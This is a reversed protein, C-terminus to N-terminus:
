GSDRLITGDPLVLRVNRLNFDDRNEESEDLQFPSAKNGARVTITNEGVHLREDDIPVTITEWDVMTEDFIHLTEEGMTVGNQFFVNIGSVEYAFYADHELSKSLDKTIEENDIFMNSM